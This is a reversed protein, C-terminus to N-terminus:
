CLQGALSLFISVRDGEGNTGENLSWHYLHERNTIWKFGCKFSILAATKLM